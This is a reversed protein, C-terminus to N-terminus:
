NNNFNNSTAGLILVRHSFEKLTYFTLLFQPLYLRYLPALTLKNVGKESLFSFWFSFFPYSGNSKIIIIRVILISVSSCNRDVLRFVCFLNFVVDPFILFRFINLLLQDCFFKVDRSKSDQYDYFKLCVVGRPLVRLTRHITTIPSPYDVIVTMLTTIMTSIQSPPTLVIQKVCTESLKPSGKNLHPGLEPSSM